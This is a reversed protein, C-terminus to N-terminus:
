VLKQDVVRHGELTLLWAKTELGGPASYGHLARKANVVRHCPIVLPLPNRALAGGIARAARPKGIMEALEGYTRVQGFPIQVAAHLVLSEFRTVLRWDIPLKFTHLEGALYAIIEDRAISLMKSSSQGNITMEIGLEDEMSQSPGFAVRLLGQESAVLSITQIPSNTEFTLVHLPIPVSLPTNFMDIKTYCFVLPPLHNEDRLVGGGSM